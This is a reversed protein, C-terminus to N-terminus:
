EDRRNKSLFITMQWQAFPLLKEQLHTANPLNGLLLMHCKDGDMDIGDYRNALIAMADDSTVFSEKSQEIDKSIFVQTNTEKEILEKIGKVTNEDQVLFLSRDVLENIKLLIIPHNSFFQRKM